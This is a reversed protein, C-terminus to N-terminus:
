GLPQIGLVHSPGVGQTIADLSSRAFYQDRGERQLRRFLTVNKKLWVIRRRRLVIGCKPLRNTMERVPLDIRTLQKCRDFDYGLFEFTAQWSSRRLAFAV